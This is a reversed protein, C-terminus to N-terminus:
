RRHQVDGTRGAHRHRLNAHRDVPPRQHGKCAALIVRHVLGDAFIAGFHGSIRDEHNPTTIVFVDGTVSVAGQEVIQCIIQTLECIKGIIRGM